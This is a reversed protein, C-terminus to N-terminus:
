QNLKIWQQYLQQEKKSGEEPPLIGKETYAKKIMERFKKLVQYDSM